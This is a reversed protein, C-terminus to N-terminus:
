QFTAVQYVRTRQSAVRMNGILFTERAESQVDLLQLLNVSKSCICTKLPELRTQSASYESAIQSKEYDRYYYEPFLVLFTYIERRKTGLENSLRETM